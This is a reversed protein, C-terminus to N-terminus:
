NQGIKFLATNKSAAPDANFIPKSGLVSGGDCFKTQGFRHFKRYM